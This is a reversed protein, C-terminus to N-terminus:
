ASNISNSFGIGVGNGSTGVSSRFVASLESVDVINSNLLANGSGVVNLFHSPSNTGIGVNGTTDVFVGESNGDGSLYNGNLNLNQTATHNGFNDGSLASLDVSNGDEISLTAGSLSLTQDDPIGTLGSGDGSFATATVTGNVDLETTPNTTGIGVEGTKIITMSPLLNRGPTTQRTAFHLDGKGNIGSDEFVIAAGVYNVNTIEHVFGIGVAGGSGEDRRQFVVALESVDITDPDIMANSSKEITLLHLPQNTGIGINGTTDVFIGENDGDGSLYNGNLQINQTAAHNGLNDGPLASLDVNNGDE